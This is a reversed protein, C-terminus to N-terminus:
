GHRGRHIFVPALAVRVLPLMVFVQAAIASRSYTTAPIAWCALGFLVAGFIACGGLWRIILADPVLKSQRLLRAAVILAVLKLGALVWILKPLFAIFQPIEETHTVIRALAAFAIGVPLLSILLMAWMPLRGLSCWMGSVAAKIGGLVILGYLAILGLCQPITLLHMVSVLTPQYRGDLSTPLLLVGLALALCPLALRFAVRISMQLKAEVIQLTTLPRLALFPVLSRDKAINDRESGCCGGFGFYPAMLLTLSVLGIATLSLSVGRFQVPNPESPVLFIAMLAFLVLFMTTLVKMVLGNRKEELWTQTAIRSRFEPLNPIRYDASDIAGIAALGHRVRGICKISAAISAIMLTGYALGVPVPKIVGFGFAAPGSVLSAVAVFSLTVRLEPRKLPFWSVAQFLSVNGALYPAIWWTDSLSAISGLIVVAIAAGSIALSVASLIMPWAVLELDGLPLLLMYSPFGSPGQQGPEPLTLEAFLAIVVILLLCGSISAAQQSRGGFLGGVCIVAIMCLWARWSKMLLFRSFPISLGLSVIPPRRQRDQWSSRM